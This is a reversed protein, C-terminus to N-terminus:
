PQPRLTATGNLSERRVGAQLAPCGAVQAEYSEREDGQAAFFRAVLLGIVQSQSSDLNQKWQSTEALQQQNFEGGNLQLLSEMMALAVHIRRGYALSQTDSAKGRTFLEVAPDRSLAYYHTRLGDALLEQYAQVEFKTPQVSLFPQPQETFGALMAGLEVRALAMVWDLGRREFTDDAKQAREALTSPGLQLQRSLNTYLAFEDFEKVFENIEQLEQDTSDLVLTHLYELAKRYENYGVIRNVNRADQKPLM